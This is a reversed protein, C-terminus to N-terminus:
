EDSIIITSFDYSVSDLNPGHIEIKEIYEVSDTHNLMGEIHKPIYFDSMLEHVYYSGNPRNILYGPNYVSSIRLLSKNICEAISRMKNDTIKNNFYIIVRKWTISHDFESLESKYSNNIGLSNNKSM